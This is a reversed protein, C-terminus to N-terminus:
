QNHIIPLGGENHAPATFRSMRPSLLKQREQFKEHLLAVTANNSQNMRGHQPTRYEFEIKSNRNAVPSKLPTILKASFDHDLFDLNQTNIASNKPSIIVKKGSM